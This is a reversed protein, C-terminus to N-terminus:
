SKLHSSAKGMREGNKRRREEESRKEQGKAGRREEENRKAGRREGENGKEPVVLPAVKFRPLHPVAEDGLAELFM